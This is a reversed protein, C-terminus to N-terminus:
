VLLFGKLLKDGFDRAFLLQSDVKKTTANRKMM